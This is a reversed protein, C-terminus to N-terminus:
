QCCRPCECVELPENFDIFRGQLEVLKELTVVLDSTTSELKDRLAANINMLEDNMDSLEMIENAVLNTM